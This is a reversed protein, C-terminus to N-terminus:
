NVAASSSNAPGVVQTAGTASAWVPRLDPLNIWRAWARAAVKAPYKLRMWLSDYRMGTSGSFGVWLPERPLRTVIKSQPSHRVVQYLCHEAAIGKSGDVNRYMGVIKERYFNYSFVMLRSECMGTAPDKYPKVDAAMDFRDPLARLISTLNAVILRGTLKVVYHDPTLFKSAAIGADLLRFEGYGIGFERPYDNLDLSIFEVNKNYRNCSRALEHFDGLDAGTNEILTIGDVLPSPTEMLARVARLYQERRTQGDTVKVLMGNPNISATLVM